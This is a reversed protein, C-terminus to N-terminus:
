VDICGFRADAWCHGSGGSICGFGASIAASFIAAAIVAWDLALAAVTGWFQLVSLKKLEDSDISAKHVNM